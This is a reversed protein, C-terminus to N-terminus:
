EIWKHLLELAQTPENRYRQLVEIVFTGEKNEVTFGKIKGDKMAILYDM